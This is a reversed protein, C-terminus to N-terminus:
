NYNIKKLNIDLWLEINKVCYWFQHGGIPKNFYFKEVSFKLSENFSPLKNCYRTLLLDELLSKEILYLFLYKTDKKFNINKNLLLKDKEELFQICKKFKIKLKDFYMECIKIMIEKKRLSFGGNFSNKINPIPAGIFDYKFYCLPINRFIITDEQYFLLNDGMFLKYFSSDLLMISYQLRTINEKDLKIIKINRNIKKVINNMFNYNNNGCVITYSWDNGLVRICNKIIFYLHELERFEILIAEKHLNTKLIPILHSELWSENKICYNIFIDKRIKYM